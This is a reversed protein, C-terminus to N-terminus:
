RARGDAAQRASRDARGVPGKLGKLEKEGVNDLIGKDFVKAGCITLSVLPLMSRRVLEVEPLEPM